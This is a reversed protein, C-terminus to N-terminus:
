RRPSSPSRRCPLHHYAEPKPTLLESKYSWPPLMVAPCRGGDEGLPKDQNKTKHCLHGCSEDTWDTSDTTSIFFHRLVGIRGIRPLIAVAVDQTM